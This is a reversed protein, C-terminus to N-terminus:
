LRYNVNIQAIDSYTEAQCTIHPTICFCPIKQQLQSAYFVDIERTYGQLNELIYDIAKRSIIYSGTTLTYRTLLINKTILQTSGELHNGTLYLIGYIPSIRNLQDQIEHIRDYFKMNKDLKFVTDDELILVNKYDREKSIQMIKYHSLLCGLAGLRYKSEDKNLRKFWTPIDKIFLSNWNNLDDTTPRIADFFEYNKMDVRMLEKEIAERRDTREKLNIIFVKDIEM